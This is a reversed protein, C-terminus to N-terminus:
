SCSPLFVFLYIFCFVFLCIFSLMALAQMCFDLRVGLWLRYTVICNLSLFIHQQGELELADKLTLSDPCINYVLDGGVPFFLLKGSSFGIWGFADTMFDPNHQYM